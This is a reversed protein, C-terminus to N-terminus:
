KKIENIKKKKCFKNKSKEFLLFKNNLGDDIEILVCFKPLKEFFFFM